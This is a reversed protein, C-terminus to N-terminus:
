EKRISNYPRLPSRVHPAMQFAAIYAAKKTRRKKNEFTSELIAFLFV